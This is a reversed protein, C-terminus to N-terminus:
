NSMQCLTDFARDKLEAGQGLWASDTRKDASTGRVHDVFHTVGNLVGYLNGPTAGPARYYSRELDELGRIARSSVETKNYGFGAPAKLLDEFSQAKLDQRDAPREGAPRLLDSFLATAENASIPCQVLQALQRSFMNWDSEFRDLNLQKKVATPSFGSAHKVKLAKKGGNGNDINGLAVRLTNNCVVRTSTNAVTSALSGDCSTSFLVYGDITDGPIPQCTIGPVKATAWYREGNRLAGTASMELGNEHCLSRFFEVVERPQVLKYRGSVVGLAEGTDNRYNVFRDAVERHILDSAAQFQVVAQLVEFSLGSQEIWDELASGTNLGQGLGHWAQGHASNFAFSHKGNLYNLEHAM